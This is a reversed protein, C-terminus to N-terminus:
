KEKVLEELAKLPLGKVQKLIKGKEYQTYKYTNSTEKEIYTGYDFTGENNVQIGTLLNESDKEEFLTMYNNNGTAKFLNPYSIALTMFVKLMPSNQDSLKEERLLKHYRQLYFIEKGMKYYAILGPHLKPKQAITHLELDFSFVETSDVKLELRGQDKLFTYAIRIKDTSNSVNFLQFGDPVFEMRLVEAYHMALLMLDVHTILGLQYYETSLLYGGGGDIRDMKKTLGQWPKGNKYLTKTFIPEHSYYDKSFDMAVHYQAQIAGGTYYDVVPMEREIEYAFYGEYPKGNQYQGTLTDKGEVSYRYETAEVLKGDKYLHRYAVKNESTYVHMGELLGEANYHEEDYNYQQQATIM